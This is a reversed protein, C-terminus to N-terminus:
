AARSEKRKQDRRELIPGEDSELRLRIWYGGTWKHVKPERSLAVFFQIYFAVGGAGVLALAFTVPM